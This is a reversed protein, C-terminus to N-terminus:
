RSFQRARLRVRVRTLWDAVTARVSEFGTRIRAQARERRSPQPPDRLSAGCWDCFTAAEPRRRRCTECTTTPGSLMARSHAFQHRLLDRRPLEAVYWGHGAHIATEYFVTSRLVPRDSTDTRENHDGSAWSDGDRETAEPWTTGLQLGDMVTASKAAPSVIGDKDAIYLGTHYHNQIKAELEAPSRAWFWRTRPATDVIAEAMQDASVLGDVTWVGIRFALEGGTLTENRVSVGEDDTWEYDYWYFEERESDGVTPDFAAFATRTGQMLHLARGSTRLAGLYKDPNPFDTTM